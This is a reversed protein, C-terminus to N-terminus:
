RTVILNKLVELNEPKKGFFKTVPELIEIVAAAVGNKLDLPHLNGERFSKALEEFNHFTIDGGFKRPREIKLKTLNPFVLMRAHDLVPNREVVKEPCYADHYKEKVENPSDNIWIAGKAVSKSMKHKISTNIIEDEDFSGEINTIQLGPLLPNHLCVPVKAGVRPAVERALMHVKRQDMGSCATDLDMQFIDATQMAPYLAYATEVNVSDASRGMIPMARLTRRLSTSKMIRIVKEWYEKSDVVDSAWLYEVKSEPLGLATFCDKFYEAVIALNELEGGMKNNIWAHWEALYIIFHFGAEVYDRMKKGVILGTGAHMIGSPEFGVYGRPNNNTELLNQLEVKTIIEQLNQSVLKLRTETDM